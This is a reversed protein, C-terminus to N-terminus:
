KVYKFNSIPGNVCPRSQEIMASDKPLPALPRNGCATPGRPRCATWCPQANLLYRHFSLNQGNRNKGESTNFGRVLSPMAVPVMDGNYVSFINRVESFPALDINTVGFRTPPHRIGNSRRESLVGVFKQEHVPSHDNCRFTDIELLGGITFAEIQDHHIGLNM